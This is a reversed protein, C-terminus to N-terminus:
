ASRLEFVRESSSARFQFADLRATILIRQLWRQARGSEDFRSVFADRAHLSYINPIYVLAGPEVQIGASCAELEDHFNDLTHATADCLPEMVDGYFAATVTEYGPRGSLVPSAAAWEVTNQRRQRYPLALRVCDRRLLARQGEDLRAAAIRGNAVRTMPGNVPSALGFLLLGIPSLDRDRAWWRHIASETHFGLERRSGTGTLQDRDQLSPILNNVLSNGEGAIGYPEGLLAGITILQAESLNGSKCEHVCEGPLPVRHVNDTALEHIVLATPSFSGNRIAECVTLLNTPCSQYAEQRLHSVIAHDGLRDWKMKHNDLSRLKELDARTLRLNAVGTETCIHLNTICSPVTGIHRM